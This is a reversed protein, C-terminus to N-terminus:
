LKFDWEEKLSIPEKIQFPNREILYKFKKIDLKDEYLKQKTAFFSLVRKVYTRTESFPIHEIFEDYYLNKFANQDEDSATSRAEDVQRQNRLWFKVRHPGGNYAAAMLPIQDDFEIALKRLYAAGYQIAQDPKFLDSPDHKKDKILEAVKISTYPMFQMLGVAGVPSIADAKYQTEAKMISWVIYPSIKRRIAESFVSSQYAKPYIAKWLLEDDKLSLKKGSSSSVKQMLSLARYYFQKDLYYQVLPEAMKRNRLAREVEFLHWKAFDAFGWSILSDAWKIQNRLEQVGEIEIASLDSNEAIIADQNLIQIDGEDTAAIDEFYSKYETIFRLPNVTDDPVMYMGRGSRVNALHNKFADTYVESKRTEYRLWGMFNYYNFFQGNLIPLALQRYQDVAKTKLDMAWQSQALWYINRAKDRTWSKNKEFEEAAALYNKDLFYCWARLWTLDDFDSRKFKKNLSPHANILESLIAISEKYKRTQYLLFAKQFKYDRRLNASPAMSINQNILKEAKEMEGARQAIYFLNEFYKKDQMIEKEYSKVENFAAIPDGTNSFFIARLYAKQWPVFDNEEKIKELEQRAQSEFGAFILMRTRYIADEFRVPCTKLGEKIKNLPLSPQALWRNREGKCLESAISNKELWKLYVLEFDFGEPLNKVKKLLSKSEKIMNLNTTPLAQNTELNIEIINKLTELQVRLLKKNKVLQQHLTWHKDPSKEYYAIFFDKYFTEENSATQWEKFKQIAEELKGDKQLKFAQNLTVLDENLRGFNKMTLVPQLRETSTSKSVKGRKAAKVQINFSVSLLLVLLLFNVKRM